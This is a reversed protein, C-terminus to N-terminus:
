NTIVLAMTEFFKFTNHNTFVNTTKSSLGHMYESDSVYNNINSNFNNRAAMVINSEMEVRCCFATSIQQMSDFVPYLQVCFTLDQM